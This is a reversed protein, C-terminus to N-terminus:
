QTALFRGASRLLLVAPSVREVEVEVSGPLGHQLPIRSPAPTSLALEVRVQGDRIEGAVRSVKAAITGYQMWPFGKLKVRAPQGPHLKGFASSPPFEAVVHLRGTPLIVAITEGESIHSGPRLIACDSLRGDAAARIRRREIEYELRKVAALSASKQAELKAIDSAIQDLKVERDSERVRLEPELRGIAIRLDEAAARRSKAVANAQQADAEAILGDARLRNARGAQQEALIAQAEAERFKAQAEELSLGLVRREGVRGENQGSIQARLVALQPDLAVLKTKEEELALRESESDLDALVDGAHVEEGLVLNTSVIQGATSAQVPYASGSVEFRASSTIEYRPVRTEFAWVIWLAALGAAVIFGVGSRLGNDQRLSQNVRYFSTPM